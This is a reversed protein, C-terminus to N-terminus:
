TVEWIKLMSIDVLAGYARDEALKSRSLLRFDELFGGWRTWNICLGTSTFNHPHVPKSSTCLDPRM